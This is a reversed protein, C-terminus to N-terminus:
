DKGDHCPKIDPDAIIVSNDSGYANFVYADAQRDNV